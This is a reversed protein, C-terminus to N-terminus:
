LEPEAETVEEKSGLTYEEKGLVEEVDETTISEDELAEEVKDIEKEEMNKVTLVINGGVVQSKYIETEWM